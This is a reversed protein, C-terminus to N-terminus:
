RAHINVCDNTTIIVHYDESDVLMKPQNLFASIYRHPASPIPLVVVLAVNLHTLTVVTAM